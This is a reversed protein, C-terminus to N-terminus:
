IEGWKIGMQDEGTGGPRPQMGGFAGTTAARSIARALHGPVLSKHINMM